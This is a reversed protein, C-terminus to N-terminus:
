GTVQLLKSGTLRQWSTQRLLPGHILPWSFTTASTRNSSAPSWLGIQEISSHQNHSVHSPMIRSFFLAHERSWHWSCTSRRDAHTMQKTCMGGPHLPKVLTWVAATSCVAWCRGHDQQSCTQRQPLARSIRILGTVSSTAVLQQMCNVKQLMNYELLSITRQQQVSSLLDITWYSLEFYFKPVSM